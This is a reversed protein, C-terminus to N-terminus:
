AARSSLDTMLTQAGTLVPAGSRSARTEELQTGHAVWWREAEEETWRGADACADLASRLERASAYRSEPKKELCRLIVDCLDKPLERGVRVDPPEPPTHLHHACIEVVTRAAFLHTGTLLAYGVAGLSYLDGRADVTDPSSVAEPALYLPTGTLAGSRSLSGDQSNGLDKVLGFDLVKVMDPVGWRRCLFLNAPKIDRHLLGRGHAEDLAGCVQRLIHIVRRAPLPGAVALVRELDGGELHEMVYYFLGEVTRGYDYIAIINPHTLQSTLQVEREFRELGRGDSDTRLVKIATHRRLLAHSALFVEGMAGAGLPRLLTYQGLRRADKVQQRLGYIVRSVLTAVVVAATSWIFAEITPLLVEGLVGLRSWALLGILVGDPLVGVLSIWFTRRATSPVLVARFSTITISTLLIAVRNQDVFGELKVAYLMALLGVGDVWRLARPSLSANRCLLWVGLSLLAGLLNLFLGPRTFPATWPLGRRVVAELSTFVFFSSSIAFSAKCLFALRQQVVARGEESALLSADLPFSGPTRAAPWSM